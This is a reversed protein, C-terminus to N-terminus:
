FRRKPPACIEAPEHHQGRSPWRRGADAITLWTVEIPQRGARVTKPTATALGARVLGALLEVTFGHARMTPETVGHPSGALVDLARRQAATMAM